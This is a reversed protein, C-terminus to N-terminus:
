GTFDPAASISVAAGGVNSPITVAEAATAVVTLSSAPYTFLVAQASVAASDVTAEGDSCTAHVPYSGPPTGAPVTVTASWSGDDNATAAFAVGPPYPPFELTGNVFQGTLALDAIEVACGEGSLTVTDGAM